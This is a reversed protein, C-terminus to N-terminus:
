AVTRRCIFRSIVSSIWAYADYLRAAKGPSIYRKRRRIGSFSLRLSADAAATRDATEIGLQKVPELV